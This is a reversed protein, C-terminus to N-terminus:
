GSADSRSSGAWHTALPLAYGLDVLADRFAVDHEADVALHRDGLLRCCAATRTDHAVLAATAPDACEVLRVVGPRVAGLRASGRRDALKPEVVQM